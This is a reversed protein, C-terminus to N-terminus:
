RIVSNYQHWEGIDRWNSNNAEYVGVKIGKKTLLAILEDMDIAKNKKIYQLIKKNCIYVGSNIKFDFTPKEDIKILKFSRKDYICNGYPVTINKNVAIITIINKNKLHFKVIESFDLDIIIDANILLFNESINKEVFKLSGATGLSKTETIYSFFKKYKSDNLYAKIISSKYNLSIFIKKIGIEVFDYIIKSIIPQGNIPFLPKPLVETIPLLRKGYGGAMIFANISPIKKKSNYNFLDEIFIIDVVQNENNVVPAVFIKNKILLNKIKEYNINENNISIPNKNYIETIQSNLNINNELAQRINGDTLVGLLENTNNVVILCKKGNDNIKKIATKILINSSTLIKRFSKNM